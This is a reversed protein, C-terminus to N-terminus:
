ALSVRYENRWLELVTLSFLRQMNSLGRRQGALLSQISARDLWTQRADLLVSQIYRGWDGRFWSALPLCFGQKRNLDLERPLLRAALRRPLIKCEGGLTRLQDPVRRFAFDILKPDLWPARVELSSLMSARDVKMLIDDALYTQFDVATAAQLVSQGARCLRMKYLEPFSHPPDFRHTKGRTLLPTLLRSRAAADFYLNVNAISTSADNAFSRLYNRGRMGQPLLNAAAGLCQRLPRPVYRRLQQQRNLWAYHRYGGFLEDGGDGGLAVTAHPRILRSVLYTPVLSSDALPEDYQRVLEPLLDVTAAEAALEIHETGFHRAVLRAYPSEDFTEHGPFSITFTKVPRSSVKAALATVLSSDIGGSLMVGVPVDAVLRRRVSETLLHELEAVLNESDAPDDVYEPLKWYQQAQLEARNLDFSMAHGAPLKALGQLICQAGSVYGYALYHELAQRDIRRSCSPDALLAKLESAFAFGTADHRYYLPKEGARDRALFLRQRAADYLAFAFMGDFRELCDDNWQRYAALIVETDSASRFKHGLAELERRLEVHNYIEGNFTICLQGAADSMPQHGGPSLDIIALRRQALGVRGDPSFWTGADDPGRHTMTDRMSTLLAPDVRQNLSVIGAIGCM